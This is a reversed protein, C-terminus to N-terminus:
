IDKVPIALYIVTCGHQRSVALSDGAVVDSTTVDSQGKGETQLTPANLAAKVSLLSIPATHASSYSLLLSHARGGLRVVWHLRDHLWGEPAPVAGRHKQPQSDLLSLSTTVVEKHPNFLPLHTPSSLQKRLARSM